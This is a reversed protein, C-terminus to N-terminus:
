KKPRGALQFFSTVSNVGSNQYIQYRSGTQLWLILTTLGLFSVVLCFIGALGWRRWSSYGYRDADSSIPKGIFAQYGTEDYAFSRLVIDGYRSLTLYSFAVAIPHPLSPEADPPRPDMERISQLIRAEDDMPVSPSPVSQGQIRQSTLRRNRERLFLERAGKCWWGGESPMWTVARREPWTACPHLHFVGYAKYLDGGEGCVQVSFVIQGIMVLPLLLNAADKSRNAIASLLLGQSVGGLGILWLVLGVVVPSYLMADKGSGVRLGWLVALFVCTQVLSMLGLITMKAVLYSSLRLYLFQEHDFVEREAVIALLSLSSGMWIATLVCFFGLLERKESGMLAFHLATAFVVPVLVLPVVFRSLWSNRLLTFDRSLLVKVQEIAGAATPSRSRRRRGEHASPSKAPASQPDIVEQKNATEAVTPPCSLGAQPDAITDRPEGDYDIMGNAIVLMRDCLSVHSLGHTVVMVTCGRNSVSRLLRMLNAERERDLGSAPEDLLLLRPQALLECAIRVRKQEGGSLQSIPANWRKEPIELERLVQKVEPASHRGLRLRSSYKLAQRPSLEAHLIADQSLYGLLGRFWGSERDVDRDDALVRGGGRFGPLRAIAKLLSSKGSGSRGCVALLQGRPIRLSPVTLRGRPLAMDAVCVEVGPIGPAPLLFGDAASFTWAYPGVQILDGSSLRHAVIRRGNVWTGRRTRCDALWFTDTGPQQVVVCHCPEVNPHALQEKCGALRGFTIEGPIKLPLSDTTHTGPELTTVTEAASVRRWVAIRVEGCETEGPLSLREQRTGVKLDAQSLSTPEVTITDGPLPLHLARDGAQCVETNGGKWTARVHLHIERTKGETGSEAEM